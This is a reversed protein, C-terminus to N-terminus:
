PRGDPLLMSPRARRRREALTAAGKAIVRRHGRAREKVLVKKKRNRRGTDLVLFCLLPCCRNAPWIRGAGAVMLGNSFRM